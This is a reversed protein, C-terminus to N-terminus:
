CLRCTWAAHPGAHATLRADPAALRISWSPPCGSKSGAVMVAGGVGGVLCGLVLVEGAHQPLVQHGLPDDDGGVLLDDASDAVGVDGSAAQEFGDEFLLLLFVGVVQQLKEAVYAGSRGLPAEKRGTDGGGALAPVVSRSSLQLPFNWPSIVAVAGQSRRPM